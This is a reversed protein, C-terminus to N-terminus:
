RRATHRKVVAAQAREGSPGPAISYPYDGWWEGGAWYTWGRWVDGNRDLFGLLGDLAALCIPSRTGGFEGLFASAKQRRLWDTVGALRESGVTASVCDSGTGSSNSDLYQHIEFLFHNAPDRFGALQRASSDADGDFWAQGGTWRVGPILLLNKAGTARVATVTRDLIPRWDGPALDHPENMLGFAVKPSTRYHDALKRWVDALRGASVASRNLPRERYRGYNHLDLVILSFDGLERVMTDLRALEAPDLPGMATPQIREWLFPIRATNAGMARYPAASSRQPFIYDKAYIGPLRDAGFEGGALNIGTFAPRREGVPSGVPRSSVGYAKPPVEGASFLVGIGVALAVAASGHGRRVPAIAVVSTRDRTM